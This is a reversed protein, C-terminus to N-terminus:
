IRISVLQVPNVHPKNTKIRISAQGVTSVVQRLLLIKISVLLATIVALSELKVRISGQLARIVLPLHPKNMKIKINEMEAHKAHHQLTRIM